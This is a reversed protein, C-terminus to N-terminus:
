RQKQKVRFSRGPNPHDGCCRLLSRGHDCWTESGWVVCHVCDGANQRTDTGDVVSVSLVIFGLWKRCPQMHLMACLMRQRPLVAAPGCVPRSAACRPRGAAASGASGPLGLGLPWLAAPPAPLPLAPGDAAGRQASCRCTLLPVHKSRSSVTDHVLNSAPCCPHLASSPPKAAAAPHADM